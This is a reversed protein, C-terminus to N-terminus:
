LDLDRPVFITGAHPKTSWHTGAEELRVQNSSHVSIEMSADNLLLFLSGGDAAVSVYLQHL